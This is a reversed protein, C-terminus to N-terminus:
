ERVNEQQSQREQHDIIVAMEVGLLNSAADM